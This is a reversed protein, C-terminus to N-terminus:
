QTRDGVDWPLVAGCRTAVKELAAVMDASLELGRERAKRLHALAAEGPLRLPRSPDAPTAARCLEAIAGTSRLFYETGAFAQPNWIQITAANVMGTADDTRGHGALGQSLIEGMLGWGFGKQGHDIGGAPLLAGGLTLVAPDNSPMGDPAILCDTDFRQGQRKLAFAANNTSISASVDILIPDKGTPLAAGTPAPSLVPSAGGFPAVTAIGPSSTFVVGAMQREAIALLHVVLGGFHHSNGLCVTATGLREARELAQAVAVGMLWCGPLRRGDLVLAAGHDSVVRAEGECTMRGESIEDLYRPLLAVGHTDHGMADTRVLVDAIANAKDGPMGSSKLSSSVFNLLTPLPVVSGSM